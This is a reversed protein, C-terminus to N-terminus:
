CGLAKCLKDFQGEEAWVVACYKGATGIAGAAHLNVGSQAAKQLIDHVAGMRDDGECLCAEGTKYAAGMKKLVEETRKPDKGIFVASAKGSGESWGWTSVLDVNAERYAALVRALEGPKDALDLTVTKVRKLNAM